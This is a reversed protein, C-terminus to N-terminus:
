PVDRYDGLIDEADYSFYKREGNRSVVIYVTQGPSVKNMHKILGDLSMNHTPKGNLEIIQDDVQLGSKEAHSGRRIYAIQYIPLEPIEAKLVLGTTNIRFPKGYHTNRAVFMREGQYDFIVNFRHLVDAGLTGYRDEHLAELRISNSDPYAVIPGDLTFGALSAEYIRARWGFINGNLGKGLYLLAKRQPPQLVPKDKPFVWFSESSGTDILMKVKEPKKDPYPHLGVPIYPKQNYIEMPLERYFFGYWRSPFHERPYFRIAQAQYNIHVIFQSLLDYGIIGNIRRGLQESLHFIDEVLVNFQLDKGTMRGMKLINGESRYAELPKGTGHGHIKIREAQNIQLTDSAFLRTIITNKVGSDLIFYLPGSNNIHVPIIMLNSVLEFDVSVYRKIGRDISLEPVDQAHLPQSQCWCFLLCLFLYKKM